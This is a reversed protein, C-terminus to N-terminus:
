LLKDIKGELETIHQAMLQIYQRMQKRDDRSEKYAINFRVLYVAAALVVLIGVIIQGQTTADGM